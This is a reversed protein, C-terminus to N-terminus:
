RRPRRGRRRGHPPQRRRQPRRIWPRVVFRSRSTSTRRCSANRAPSVWVPNRSSCPRPRAACRGGASRARGIAAVPRGPAARGDPPGAAAEGGGERPPPWGPPPSRAPRAASRTACRPTAAAARPRRRPPPRAVPDGPVAQSGLAEGVRDQDAGCGGQHDQLGRAHPVRRRRGSRRALVARPSGGRNRRSVGAAGGARVRRARRARSGAPAWAPYAHQPDLDLGAVADAVPCATRTSSAIFISCRIAAGAAPCPRRTFTVGPRCTSAPATSATM